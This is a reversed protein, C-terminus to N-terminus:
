LYAVIDFRIAIEGHFHDQGGRQFVSGQMYRIRGTPFHVPVM